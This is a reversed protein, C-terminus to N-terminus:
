YKLEIGHRILADKIDKVCKVSAVEEMTFKVNFVNELESAIMLGNFSDWTEVDDPSTEDTIGNEDIELIKALIEKVRKM